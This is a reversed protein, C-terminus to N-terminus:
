SILDGIYSVWSQPQTPDICLHLEMSVDQYESEPVLSFTAIDHHEPRCSENAAVYGAHGSKIYKEFQMLSNMETPKTIDIASYKNYKSCLEFQNNGLYKTLEKLITTAVVGTFAWKFGPGKFNLKTAATVASVLAINYGLYIAGLPACLLSNAISPAPLFHDSYDTSVVKQIHNSIAANGSLYAYDAPYLHQAKDTQTLLIHNCHTLLTNFIAENGTIAGIHFLNFNKGACKMGYSESLLGKLIDNEGHIIAKISEIIQNNHQQNSVLGLLINTLVDQDKIITAVQKIDQMTALSYHTDKLAEETVKIFERKVEYNPIQVFYEGSRKSVALYGSHVLLYAFFEENYKISTFDYQMLSTAENYALVVEKNQAVMSLKYMLDNNKSGLHLMNQLITSTGSQSWYSKGNFDQSNYAADLYNMVAWPTYVKMTASVNFPIEYGNYWNKITQLIHEKNEGFELKAVLGEVEQESFGFGKSFTYDLIGYTNVNNFGSNGEKKVTDYIGTLIIKQLSPNTKGCSSLISTVLGVTKQILEQDISSGLELLHNVPKDYEDVLIYVKQNHHKELIESLFRISDSLKGTTVDGNLYTNLDTKLYMSLKNSHVLYDYKRFLKTIEIKLMNEITSLSSGIVDKFSIFIVPYKGQHRKIYIGDNINTIELENLQNGTQPDIGGTFLIKNPNEPLVNGDKDVTVTLFNKLMDLALTKGFRRPKTLLVAKHGDDIIEQIFLTKDVFINGKTVLEKFDDSGTVM